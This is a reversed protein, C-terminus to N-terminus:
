ITIGLSKLKILTSSLDSELGLFKELQYKAYLYRANLPHFELAKDVFRLASLQDNAADACISKAFWAQGSSSNVELLRSSLKDVLPCNELNSIYKITVLETPTPYSWLNLIDIIKESTNYKNNLINKFEADATLLRISLPIFILLLLLATIQKTKNGISSKTLQAGSTKSRFYYSSILGMCIYPIPLNAISDTNIFLQVVYGIFISSPLALDLNRNPNQKLLSKIFYFILLLFLLYVTGVFIGGNALHDVIVNHSKDAVIDVGERRIDEPRMYLPMFRQMNDVGVGFLPNDRFMELGARQQALRDDASTFENFLSRYKNLVFIITGFSFTTILIKSVRNIKKILYFYYITLFSIISVSSVVFFQFSKTQIGSYAITLFGLGFLVRVLNNNFKTIGYLFTPLLIAIYSAAYNSNGLTLVVRDPEGWIFFDFNLIQIYSYIITFVGVPFLSYKFLKLTDTDKSNSIIIFIIATALYILIGFNRKYGGFFANLLNQDNMLASILYLIPILLPLALIKNQLKLSQPNIVVYGLTFAILAISRPLELPESLNPIILLFVVSPLFLVM